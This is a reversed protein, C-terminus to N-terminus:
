CIYPESKWDIIKLEVWVQSFTSLISEIGRNYFINYIYILNRRSHGADLVIRGSGLRRMKRPLFRGGRNLPRISGRPWAVFWAACGMAM